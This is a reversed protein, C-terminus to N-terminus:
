AALPVSLARTRGDASSSKWFARRRGLHLSPPPWLRVVGGPFHVPLSGHRASRPPDPCAATDARARPSEAPAAFTRADDPLGVSTRFLCGRGPSPHDDARRVGRAMFDLRARAVRVEIGFCRQRALRQARTRCPSSSRRWATSRGASSTPSGRCCSRRHPSIPVKSSSASGSPSPPQTRRDRLYRTSSRGLPNTRMVSFFAEASPVIATSM